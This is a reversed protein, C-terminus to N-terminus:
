DRKGYATELRSEIREIVAETDMTAYIRDLMAELMKARDVNSVEASTEFHWAQKKGTTKAAIFMERAIGSEFVDLVPEWADPIMSFKSHTGLAGCVQGNPIQTVKGTKEDKQCPCYFELKQPIFPKEPRHKSLDFPEDKPTDKTALVPASTTAPTPQTQVVAASQAAIQAQMQQMQQMMMMMVAQMDVAPAAAPASTNAPVSPAATNTNTSM